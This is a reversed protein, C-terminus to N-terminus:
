SDVDLKVSKLHEKVQTPNHEQRQYDICGSNRFNQCKETLGTRETENKKEVWMFFTLKHVSWDLKGALQTDPTAFFFKLATKRKEKESVM